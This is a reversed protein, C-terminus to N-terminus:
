EHENVIPDFWRGIMDVGAKRAHLEFLKNPSFQEGIDDLAKDKKAINSERLFLAGKTMKKVRRLERGGDPTDIAIIDNKFVRMLKKAKPFEQKWQPTFGPQHAKYSNVIEISWKVKPDAPDKIYIDAFLNEGSAMFKFAIGEKNLIPVMGDPNM